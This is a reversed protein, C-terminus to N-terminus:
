QSIVVDIGCDSSIQAEAEQPVPRDLISGM